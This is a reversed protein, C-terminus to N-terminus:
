ASPSRLHFRSLAPGPDELFGPITPTPAPFPTRALPASPPEPRSRPREIRTGARPERRASEAEEEAGQLDASGVPVVGTSLVPLAIWLLLLKM